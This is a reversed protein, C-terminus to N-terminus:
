GISEAPAKSAPVVPLSSALDEVRDGLRLRALVNSAQHDSGSRLVNVIRELEELRNALGDRKMLKMREARSVGEPVDYRCPLDM